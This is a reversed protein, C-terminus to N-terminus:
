VVQDGGSGGRVGGAKTVARSVEHSELEVHQPDAEGARSLCPAGRSGAQKRGPLSMLVSFETDPVSRVAKSLVRHCDRLATVTM